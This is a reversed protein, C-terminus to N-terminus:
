GVQMLAIANMAAHLLIPSWINESKEYCWALAISPPIYQLLLILTEASFGIVFYQWLHYVAFLLASIIYAAIRSKQRITGFLAGRFMGEEVIPALMVSVVLMVNSNLKAQRLVEETNPNASPSLYNLVFALVMLLAFYMAFGLIVSQVSRWFSGIFDSFSKRFFRFLFGVSYLFSLTYHILTMHPDSLEIALAAFIFFLAFPIVATHVPIQVIGLVRESTKMSSTFNKKKM